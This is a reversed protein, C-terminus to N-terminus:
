IHKYLWCSLYIDKMSGQSNGCITIADSVDNDFFMMDCDSHNIFVNKFLFVLLDVNRGITVQLQKWLGDFDFKSRKTMILIIDVDSDKTFTNRAVSGVIYCNRLVDLSLCKCVLERVQNIITQQLEKNSMEFAIFFFNCSENTLCSFINLTNM